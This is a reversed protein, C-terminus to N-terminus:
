VINTNLLKKWLYWSWIRSFAMLIEPKRGITNHLFCFQWYGPSARSLVTRATNSKPGKWQKSMSWLACLDYVHWTQLAQFFQNFAGKNETLNKKLQHWIKVPQYIQNFALEIETSQLISVGKKKIGFHERHPFGIRRKRASPTRMRLGM